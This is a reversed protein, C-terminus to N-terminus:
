TLLLGILVQTTVTPRLTSSWAKEPDAPFSCSAVDVSTTFVTRKQVAVEHSVRRADREATQLLLVLPHIVVAKGTACGEATLPSGLKEWEARVYEALEVARAYRDRADGAPNWPRSM